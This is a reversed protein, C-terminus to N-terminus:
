CSRMPLHRCWSDSLSSLAFLSSRRLAIRGAGGSSCPLPPEPPKRRAGRPKGQHHTGAKRKPDGRQAVAQLDLEQGDRAGPLATPHLATAHRRGATRSLSSYGGSLHETRVRPPRERTKSPKITPKCPKKISKSHNPTIWTWLILELKRSKLPSDGHVGGCCDFVVGRLLRRGGSHDRVPANDREPM